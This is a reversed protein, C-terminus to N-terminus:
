KVGFRRAESIGHQHRGGIAHAGLQPNRNFRANMVRDANIQHRHTDIVQHHLPGLRQEEQIIEGGSLQLQGLRAGHDGADRFAAPLRATGQHPAFGGFHRPHIGGIIIIQGPKGHPGGFAPPQQGCVNRCTIHQDPKPRGPHMRVSKGQHPADQGRAAQRQGIGRGECRPLLETLGQQRRCANVHLGQQGQMPRPQQMRRRM